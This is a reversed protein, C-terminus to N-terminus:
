TIEVRAFYRPGTGLPTTGGISTSEENARKGLIIERVAVAHRWEDHSLLDGDIQFACIWAWDLGNRAARGSGGEIWSRWVCSLRDTGLALEEQAPSNKSAKRHRLLEIELAPRTMKTPVSPDVLIKSGDDSQDPQPFAGSVTVTVVTVKHKGQLKTRCTVEVTRRPLPQIWETVPTSVRLRVPPSGEPPQVDERAHPQYRVLGLRVRPSPNSATNLAVDVYWLEETPDFKPVFTKLAVAFYQRPTQETAGQTGEQSSWPAQAPLRNVEGGYPRRFSNSLGNKVCQPKATLPIPFGM